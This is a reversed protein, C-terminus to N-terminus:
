NLEIEVTDTTPYSCCLLRENPELAIGEPAKDMGILQINGSVLTARCLGCTGTQCSYSLELQQDLGAELISKGKVVELVTSQGDKKLHVVATRVDKLQNEDVKHEFEETFIRELPVANRSLVNKVTNKLETPGCIYHLSTGLNDCSSLLKASREADIRGEFFESGNEIKTEKTFFYFLEFREPNQEKLTQLQDYFITQTRTRNGYVLTVKKQAMLATKLISMLPTIGSGAGWLFLGGEHSMEKTYAFAGMPPLVELADGVKVMDILHNSVVGKTIRKVTIDLTADIGPASSFSYPRRYKRNNITLILTIYHGSQYAIKKLAPQKFCFTYTDETEKRIEIIKLTFTTM